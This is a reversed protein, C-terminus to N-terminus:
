KKERNQYRKMIESFSVPYFGWVDVGVNILTSKGRKQVKWKEHVHGTLNIKYRLDADEPKHTMYINRKHHYIKIAEIKTKTSNNQDHNGRLFIIRGNLAKEWVASKNGMGEGTKGGATNKFCFDGIMFVTDEPKVRENHRRIISNNMHNINKFPRKCYSIINAHGLHYDSTFWINM